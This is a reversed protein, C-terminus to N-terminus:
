EGPSGGQALADLLKDYSVLRPEDRVLYYVLLTLNDSNDIERYIEPDSIFEKKIAKSFHNPKM